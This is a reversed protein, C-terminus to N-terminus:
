MREWQPEGAPEALDRGPRRVGVRSVAPRRSRVSRPGGSAVRERVAAAVRRGDRADSMQFFGVAKSLQDAQGSLEESTSAVEEAAGANRQTVTDLQQIARNIQQSGADQEASASAIEQVLEATRQIDPLIGDLMKGAREAVEVSTGSRASIEAAAAGSREALKRVEAAVVAFGKGHEGARAAEIAANLALLNTQRAIEEIITIKSAIERMAEVTARVAEGSEKAAAAAEVAIRETQGANGASQRINSAMEEMSSSAEEAAAAQESAGESLQTSSASLEHSGSAVNEAATKVRGVVDRLREVMECLARMLGDQESRECVDVDLDGSAIDQALRTVTNMSASLANLNTKIANFDGRYDATIPEPVDGRSIRSVHEATVRIPAVFADVLGNIGGVLERWGGEFSAVDGRVDLQGDEVAAVLAETEGALRGLTAVM